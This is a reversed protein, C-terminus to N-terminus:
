VGLVGSDLWGQLHVGTDLLSESRIGLQYWAKVVEKIQDSKGIQWHHVAGGGHRLGSSYGNFQAGSTM